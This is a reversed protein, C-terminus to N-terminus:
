VVRRWVAEGYKEVTHRYVAVNLLFRRLRLQKRLLAEECDKGAEILADLTDLDISQKDEDQTM